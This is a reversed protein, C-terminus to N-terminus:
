GLIDEIVPVTVPLEQIDNIKLGRHVRTGQSTVRLLFPKGAFCFKEYKEQSCWRNPVGLLGVIRLRM